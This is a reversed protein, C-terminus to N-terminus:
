HGSANVARYTRPGIHRRSEVVGALKIQNEGRQCPSTNNAHWEAGAFSAYMLGRCASGSEGAWTDGAQRSWASAEVLTDVWHPHAPKCDVLREADLKVSSCYKGVFDNEQSGFSFWAVTKLTISDRVDTRTCCRPHTGAFRQGYLCM